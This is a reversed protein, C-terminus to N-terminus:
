ANELGGDVNIAQGTIFSAAPSLLFHVVSAVEDPRGPRELASAARLEPFPDDLDTGLMEHRDAAVKRYMPTDIWGPCVANVRIRPGLAAAASWTLSIVGAKSAGYPAAVPRSARGAISGFLVIAGGRDGMSLAAAQVVFFSAKLNVTMADDYDAETLVTFDAAPSIGACHVVGDIHGHRARADAFAKRTADVDAVDFVATEAFQERAAILEMTGSLRPEDLDCAIVTSGAAAETLACAQGMGSAAGTVLVTRADGHRTGGASVAAREM